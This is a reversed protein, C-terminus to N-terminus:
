HNKIYGLKSMLVLAREDSMFENIHDKLEPRSFRNISNKHTKEISKNWALHNKITTHSNFDIINQTFELNLFEFLGRITNEFNSVIDEYRILYMNELHVYKLGNTVDNIWREKDVWYKNPNTPHVSSIVDRGDRVIHIFKVRGRFFNDIEKINNINRPTKEMWRCASRKKDIYTYSSLRLNTLFRPMKALVEKRLTGTEKSICHVDPHAAIISLLLTTGSRGCGGLVIPVGKNLHNFYSYNLIGKYLIRLNKLLLKFM